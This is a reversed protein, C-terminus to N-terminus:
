WADAAAAQRLELEALAAARYRAVVAESLQREACWYEADEHLDFVLAHELTMAPLAWQSDAHRSVYHGPANLYELVIMDQQQPGRSAPWVEVRERSTSSPPEFEPIAPLEARGAARAIVGYKAGVLACARTVAARSPQCAADVVHVARGRPIRFHYGRVLDVRPLGYGRRYRWESALSIGERAPADILTWDANVFRRLDRRV